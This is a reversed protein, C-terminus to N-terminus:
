SSTTFTSNEGGDGHTRQTDVLARHLVAGSGEVNGTGKFMVQVHLGDQVFPILDLELGVTQFMAPGVLSLQRQTWRARFSRRLLDALSSLPQLLQLLVETGEDVQLLQCSAHLKGLVQDVEDVLVPFELPFTVKVSSQQWRLFPLLCQLRQRLLVADLCAHTHKHVQSLIQLPHSEGSSM